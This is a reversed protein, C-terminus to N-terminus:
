LITKILILPSNIIHLDQALKYAAGQSGYTPVIMVMIIVAYFLNRVGFKYKALCYAVLSSSFVGLVVSGFTYWISNGILGFFGVRRVEILEFAKSYNSFMLKQPFSFPDEMLYEYPDKLSSICLWVIPYILTIIHIALLIFVITFIIKQCPTKKNILDNKM